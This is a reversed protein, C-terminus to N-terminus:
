DKEEKENKEESGAKAWDPSELLKGSADFAFEGKKGDKEVDAEYAIIPEALKTVKMVGSADKEGKAFTRAIEYSAKMGKTAKKLAKAAAPPFAKIDGEEETGVLVGDPTVDADMKKGKSTFAVGIVDLGDENGKGMNSIVVDPFTDKITQTVKAEVEPTPKEKEAAAADAITTIILSVGFLVSLIGKLKM